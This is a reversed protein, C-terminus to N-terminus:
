ILLMQLSMVRRGGGGGGVFESHGCRPLMSPSMDRTKELSAVDITLYGEGGGCVCESHGFRYYCGRSGTASWMLDIGGNDCAVVFMHKNAGVCEKGCSKSSLQAM